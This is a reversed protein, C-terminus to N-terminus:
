VNVYRSKLIFPSKKKLMVISACWTHIFVVILRPTFGLFSRGM